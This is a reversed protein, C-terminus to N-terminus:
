HSQSRRGPQVAPLEKAPCISVWMPLLRCVGTDCAWLPSVVQHSRTRGGHRIFRCRPAGAATGTPAAGGTGDTRLVSRRSLDCGRDYSCRCIRPPLLLIFYSGYSAWIASLCVMELNPYHSKILLFLFFFVIGYIVCLIQARTHSMPPRHFLFRYLAAPLLFPLLAVFFYSVMIPQISFTSDTADVPASTTHVSPPVRDGEPTGSGPPLIYPDTADLTPASLMMGFASLACAQAAVTRVPLAGLLLLVLCLTLIQKKM